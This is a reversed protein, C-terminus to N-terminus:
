VDLKRYNLLIQQTIFGEIFHLIIVNTMGSLILLSLTNKDSYLVFLGIIISFVILKSLLIFLHSKIGLGIDSWALYKAIGIAGIGILFIIINM